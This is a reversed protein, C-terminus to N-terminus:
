CVFMYALVMASCFLFLLDAYGSLNELTTFILSSSCSLFIPCDYFIDKLELSKQDRMM